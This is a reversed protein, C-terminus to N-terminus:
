THYCGLNEINEHFTGTNNTPCAVNISATAPTFRKDADRQTATQRYTQGCHLEFDELKPIVM